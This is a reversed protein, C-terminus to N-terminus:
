ADFVCPKHQPIQPKPYDVQLRKFRERAELVLSNVFPSKVSGPTGHPAALDPQVFCLICRSSYRKGVKRTM